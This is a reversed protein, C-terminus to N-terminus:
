FCESSSLLLPCSQPSWTAFSNRNAKYDYMCSIPHSSGCAHVQYFMFSHLNRCAMHSTNNYM